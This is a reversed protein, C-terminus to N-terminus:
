ARKNGGRYAVWAILGIVLITAIAEALIYAFGGLKEEYQYVIFGVLVALLFVLSCIIAVGRGGGRFNESKSMPKTVKM